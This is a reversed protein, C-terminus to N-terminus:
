SPSRPSPLGRAAASYPASAATLSACAQAAHAASLSSAYAPTSARSMFRAKRTGAGGMSRRLVYYCTHVDLDGDVGVEAARVRAEDLSLYAGDTLLGRRTRHGAHM